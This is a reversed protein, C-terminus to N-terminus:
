ACSRARARSRDFCTTRCSAWSRKPRTTPTPATTSAVDFEGPRLRAVHRLLLTYTKYFASEPAVSWNRYLRKDVVIAAFRAHPHNLIDRWMQVTFNILGHSNRVRSWKAEGVVGHEALKARAYQNFSELRDAPVILAGIGYCPSEPGTASEDAFVVFRERETDGARKPGIRRDDAGVNDRDM